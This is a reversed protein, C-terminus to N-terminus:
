LIGGDRLLDGLYVTNYQVYFDPLYHPYKALKLNNDFCIEKETCAIIQPILMSKM